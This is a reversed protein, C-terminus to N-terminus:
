GTFAKLEMQRFPWRSQGERKGKAAVQEQLALASGDDTRYVTGCCRTKARFDVMWSGNVRHVEYKVMPTTWKSCAPCELEPYGISKLHRRGKWMSSKPRKALQMSARAGMDAWAWTVGTTGSRKDLEALASEARASEHAHRRLDGDSVRSQSAM